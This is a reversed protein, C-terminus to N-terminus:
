RGDIDKITFAEDVNKKLQVIMGRRYSGDATVIVKAQCDAVREAVSQASFGGFVVSHIAGIRACALMAIAAEPVMPLYILVRDGKGVGQRKLVNAFLCVERHLQRYTLTREEGSKGPTAPEGEWILAAKNALPTNLHRDLCNAAANLRGGIFWKADPPNWAQVAQFPATWVLHRRAQEGWFADPNDLSERYLKSYADMSPVRARAAFDATPPFMRTEHLINGINAAQDLGAM